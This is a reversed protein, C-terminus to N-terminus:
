DPLCPKLKRPIFNFSKNQNLDSKMFSNRICFYIIQCTYSQTLFLKIEKFSLQGTMLLMKAGGDFM